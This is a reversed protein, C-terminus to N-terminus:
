ARTEILPLRDLEELLSSIRQRKWLVTRRAVETPHATFVPVVNIAQLTRLAQELGVGADRIRLLTGLFTGAQAATNGADLYALRRRKRHNTEALNTLEFYLAFAKALKGATVVDLGHVRSTGPSRTAEENRGAISLTRLAEVTEFFGEGEQERIVNGLLRGLSRVDRRLPADKGADSTGLLEKLREGPDSVSWLPDDSAM